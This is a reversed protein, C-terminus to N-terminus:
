LIISRNSVATESEVNSNGIVKLGESKNFKKFGRHGFWLKEFSLMTAPIGKERQYFDFVTKNM